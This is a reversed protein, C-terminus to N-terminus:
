RTFDQEPRRRKKRRKWLFLVVLVLLVLVVAVHLCPFPLELLIPIIREPPVEPPVGGPPVGCREVRFLEAGSCNAADWCSQYRFGDVCPSWEGCYIESICPTVNTINTINTVNRKEPWYPTKTGGAGQPPKTPTPAPPVPPPQLRGQAIVTLYYEAPTGNMSPLMLQFDFRSGNFGTSGNVAQAAIVISGNQDVLYGMRFATGNPANTYATPVNPITFNGITFTTFSTFTASANDTRNGIFQDLLTLNGASLSLIPATSNSFLLWISGNVGYPFTGSSSNLVAGTINGPTANVSYPTQPLPSLTGVVAHWSTNHPLAVNATTINGSGTTDNGAASLGALLLALFVFIVSRPM